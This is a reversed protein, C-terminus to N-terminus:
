VVRIRPRAAGPARRSGARCLLFLGGHSLIRQPRLETVHQPDLIGDDREGVALVDHHGHDVGPRERDQSDTVGVGVLDRAADLPNPIPDASPRKADIDDQGCRGGGLRRDLVEHRLDGVLVPLEGLVDLLLVVNGVRLAGDHHVLPAPQVLLHSPGLEVDQQVLADRHEGRAQTARREDELRRVLAAHLHDTHHPLGALRLALELDAHVGDNSLSIVRGPV